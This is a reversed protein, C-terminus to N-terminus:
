ILLHPRGAKVEASLRQHDTTSKYFILVYINYLTVIYLTFIYTSCFYVLFGDDQTDNSDAEGVMRKDALM